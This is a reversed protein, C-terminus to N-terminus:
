LELPQFDLILADASIVEGSAPLFFRDRGREWSRGSWREHKTHVPKHAHSGVNAHMSNERHM